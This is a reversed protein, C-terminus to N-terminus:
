SIVGVVVQTLLNILSYPLIFIEILLNERATNARGTLFFGQKAFDDMKKIPPALGM